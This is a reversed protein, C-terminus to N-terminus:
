VVWVLDSYRALKADTTLLRAPMAMAQAVLLRDFPDRHHLPLHTVAVAHECTVPLAEFGTNRAVRAVVDPQKLFDPRRLSAKIAIEWVSAASFYVDNQRDELLKRVDPTLRHSQGVAWILFHTDLLIRL